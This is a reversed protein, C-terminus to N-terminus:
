GANVKFVSDGERVRQSVGIGVETGRSATQIPAHDLQMSQLVERFDTTHGKFHLQVGLQLTGKEIKVVAANVHPFYHTVHGILNGSIKRATKVSVSQKKGPGPLSTVASRAPRKRGKATKKVIRRKIKKKVTKTRQPKSKSRKSTKGKKSKTKKM